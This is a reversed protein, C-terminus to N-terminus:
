RTGRNFNKVDAGMPARPGENRGTTKVVEFDSGKLQRLEDLGKIRTDPAVSIRWDGGNDAMFMGYKKLGKLIAQTHPSFGTIDIDQRLRFREGMRPLNEDKHPSAYHTAPYVYAQRSKQVTFRMAHEVMGREVEDFRIVAPFIPLGAADSSTWRDPRLENNKLDFVAACSAEWGDKMLRAQWFEYIMRNLPDVVLLHRDKGKDEARQHDELKQGNVPWEEIPANVPIPFPGKESEEPYLTIKVPVRAQDPPVLVFSMDLNYAIRKDTGISAIIEKSNPLVSLKSIDENWANNAPFVQLASLIQDAEPTNFMVPTKVAPMLPLTRGSSHTGERKPLSYIKLIEVDKKLELYEKKLQEVEKRLRQLETPEPQPEAQAWVLTLCTIVVGLLALTLLRRLTTRMPPTPRNM